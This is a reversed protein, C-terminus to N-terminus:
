SNEKGGAGAAETEAKTYSAIMSRFSATELASISYLVWKGDKRASVLGSDCLIRMHHSLTPQSIGLESAASVFSGCENVKLLTYVKPDIMVVEPYTNSIHVGKFIIHM